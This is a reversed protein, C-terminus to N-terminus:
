KSLTIKSELQSKMKGVNTSKTSDKLYAIMAIESGIKEDLFYYDNGEKNLISFTLLKAILAKNELDKDEVISLFRLPNKEKKKRLMMQKESSTMTYVQDDNKDRLLELVWDVVSENEEFKVILKSYKIDAKSIIEFESLQKKNEESKDILIFEFNEANDMEELTKAVRSSQMAIMYTMYDEVNNPYDIEEDGNGTKVKRTSIDLELGKVTPLISFDAWFDRVKTVWSADNPQVGIINPMALIEQKATLGRKVDKSNPKWESSIKNTVEQKLSKPINNFRQRKDNVKLIVISM